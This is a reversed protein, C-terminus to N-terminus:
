RVVRWSTQNDVFFRLPLVANVEEIFPQGPFSAGRDLLQLTFVGQSRRAARQFNM